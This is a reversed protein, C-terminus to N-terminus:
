NSSVPSLSISFKNIVEGVRDIDETLRYALDGTPTTEFYSVELRHLHAYTQRRLNLTIALAAKAMLTDQGYQVAGRVLFIVAAVAALRAIAGVDGQGIYVAMRGM